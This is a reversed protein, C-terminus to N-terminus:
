RSPSKLERTRTARVAGGDDEWRAVEKVPLSTKGDQIPAKEPAHKPTSPTEGHEKRVKSMVTSTVKNM